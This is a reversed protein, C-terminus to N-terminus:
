ALRTLLPRLLPEDPDPQRGLRPHRGIQAAPDHEDAIRVQELGVLRIAEIGDEGAAIADIEAADLDHRRRERLRNVSRVSRGAFPAM